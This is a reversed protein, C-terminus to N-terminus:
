GSAHQPSDRVVLYSHWTIRLIVVTVVMGILPDAVTVGLAVLVASAVVALSVIGDTRAHYGDAVLAPSRLRKGARLRVWAAAENGLFGIVGAGALAWLHTLSRPNLLRDISEGFAVCASLFITAVVFYGAYREATASRILFAVGLPVATLADGANHILDALLAVSGGLVFAVVQLAATTGLILLSALVARLGERSRKISPDVLGHSHGHGGDHSHDHSHPHDPDHEHGHGHVSAM